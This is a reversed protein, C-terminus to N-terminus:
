EEAIKGLRAFACLEPMVTDWTNDERKGFRRVLRKWITWLREWVDWERENLWRHQETRDRLKRLYLQDIGPTAVKEANELRAAEALTELTKVDAQAAAFHLINHGKHSRLSCDAHAKLLLELCRPHNYYVAYHIAALGFENQANLTLQVDPLVNGSLLVELARVNNHLVAEIVHTNGTICPRIGTTFFKISFDSPIRRSHYPRFDEFSQIVSGHKQESKSESDGLEVLPYDSVSPSPLNFFLCLRWYHLRDVEENVILRHAYRFTTLLRKSNNVDDFLPQAGERLLLTSLAQMNANFASLSYQRQTLTADSSLAQTFLGM